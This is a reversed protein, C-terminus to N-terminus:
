TPRQDAIAVPLFIPANFTRSGGGQVLAHKALKLSVEFRGVMLPQQAM